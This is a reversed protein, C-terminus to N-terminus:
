QQPPFVGSESSFVVFGRPPISTTSVTRVLDGAASFVDLRVSKTTSTLNGITINTAAADGRVVQPFVFAGFSGIVASLRLPGDNDSTAAFAIATPATAVPVTATPSTASVGITTPAVGITTPAVGITTPAVGITSPIVPVNVVAGVDPRGIAVPTIAGTGSIVVTADTIPVFTVGVGLFDLAAMAIPINSSVRLLGIRQSALDVQLLATVFQSIQQGKAITITRNSVEFGFENTLSLNVVAINLSPNVLVLATGFNALGINVPLVANALVPAPGADAHAVGIPTASFLTQVASFTGLNSGQLPTVIAYGVVPSVTQANGISFCALLVLLLLTIKSFM